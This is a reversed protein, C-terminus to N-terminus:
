SRVRSSLGVSPSSAGNVANYCAAHHHDLTRKSNTTNSRRARRPLHGASKQQGDRLHKTITTSIAQLRSANVRSSISWTKSCRTATGHKLSALQTQTPLTPPFSPATANSSCRSSATWRRRNAPQTGAVKPQSAISPLNLLSETDNPHAAAIKLDDDIQLSKNEIDNLNRNFENIKLQTAAQMDPLSVGNNRERFSQMAEEAVKLEHRLRESEEILYQNASKNTAARQDFGYRIYEDAYANAVEQALTPDPLTIFIDILRTKLRYEAHVEGRLIAGADSATLETTPKEALGALFRPDKQLKLRGAVREAFPFSRLLDVVTNIMDLSVIADSGVGEVKSGLAGKNEGQEIFLVSHAQYEQHQSRLFMTAAILALVLSLIVMWLRERVAHTLDQWDM